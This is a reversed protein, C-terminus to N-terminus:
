HCRAEVPTSTVGGSRTKVGTIKRIQATTSGLWLYEYTTYDCKYRVVMAIGDDLIATGSRCGAIKPTQDRESGYRVLCGTMKIWAVRKTCTVGMRVSIESPRVKGIAHAPAAWIECFSQQPAALAANADQYVRGAMVIAVLVPTMLVLLLRRMVKTDNMILSLWAGKQPTRM